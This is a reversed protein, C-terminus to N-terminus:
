GRHGGAIGASVGVHRPAPQLQGHRIAPGNPASDPDGAPRRRRGGVHTGTGSCAGTGSTTGPGSTIRDRGPAPGPGNVGAGSPPAMAWFTLGAALALGITAALIPEM